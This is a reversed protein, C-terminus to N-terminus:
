QLFAVIKQRAVAISSCPVSRLRGMKPALNCAQLCLSNM